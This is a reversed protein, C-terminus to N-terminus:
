LDYMSIIGADFKYIVKICKEYKAKWYAGEKEDEEDVESPSPISETLIKKCVECDCSKAYELRQELLYKQVENEM